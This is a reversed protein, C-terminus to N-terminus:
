YTGAKDILSYNEEVLTLKEKDSAKLHLAKSLVVAAEARTTNGKPRFTNDPNGTLLDNGTASKVAEEAWGAISGNDAFTKGEAATNPKVAKVIMVAMQERTIPDDPGFVTESYGSIIGQSYAAAIFDKAWHNAPDSFVKRGGIPLQFGRVLLSAFEARTIKGEPKFTGDPYGSIIGQDVMKVISAEAWHGAIDSMPSALGIPNCCALMFFLLTLIGVVKRKKM